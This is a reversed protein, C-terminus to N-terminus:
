SQKGMLMPLLALLNALNPVKEILDEVQKEYTDIGAMFQIGMFLAMLSMAADKYTIENPLNGNNLLRKLEHEILDLWPNYIEELSKAIEENNSASVVFQSLVVFSCAKRDEKFVNFVKTAADPLTTSKALVETYIARRKASMDRVSEIVLGNVSGFYYFILSQNLGAKDAISRATAGEIGKEKIVDIASQILQQQAESEDRSAKKRGM